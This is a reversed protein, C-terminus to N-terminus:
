ENLVGISLFYDRVVSQYSEPLNEQKIASELQNRYFHIIELEELTPNGMHPLARIFSKMQEGEQLEAHISEEDFEGSQKKERIISYQSTDGAAENGPDKNDAIGSNDEPDTIDASNSLDKDGTDNSRDTDNPEHTKETSDVSDDILNEDSRGSLDAKEGTTEKGNEGSVGGKGRQGTGRLTEPSLSFTKMLDEMISSLEESLEKKRHLQYLESESDEEGSYQSDRNIGERDLDEIKKELRDSLKQVENDISQNNMFRDEIRKGLKRYEESIEEIDKNKPESNVADIQESINTLLEGLARNQDNVQLFSFSSLWLFLFLAMLLPQFPDRRSFNTKFVRSVLTKGIIELADDLLIQSYPNKTEAFQYAASLRENLKLEKDTQRLTDIREELGLLGYIGSLLILVPVIILPILPNTGCFFRLPLSLVIGASLTTFSVILMYQLSRVRRKRRILDDAFQNIKDKRNM